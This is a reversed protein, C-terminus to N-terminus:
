NGIEPGTRNHRRDSFDMASPKLIRMPYGLIGSTAIVAKGSTSRTAERPIPGSATAKEAASIVLRPLAAATSISAKVSVITVCVYDLSVV